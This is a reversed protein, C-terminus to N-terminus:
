RTRSAAAAVAGLHSLFDTGHHRTFRTPDRSGFCLAGTALDKARCPAGTRV